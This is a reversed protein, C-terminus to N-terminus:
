TKSVWLPAVMVETARIDRGIFQDHHANIHEIVENLKDRNTEVNALLNDIMQFIQDNSLRGDGTGSALMNALLSEPTVKGFSLTMNFTMPESGRPIRINRQLYQINGTRTDGQRSDTVKVWDWLEQGVNMPVTVFGREDDLEYTEIIAAAIRDAEADSALRRRTTHVKPDLTNSTSSTASGTFQPSHSEGSKVVEKNPNVFRLRITKNWFTHDGSVNFKYEYDYSTGTTVPDFFHLKGDNEPRDKVGTQNLLWDKRDLRSANESVQFYDKPKFDDIINDTSDYTATFSNYNTYPALTADVIATILTKATRADDETLTLETEAKDEAMQNPIGECRLIVRLLGRGSHLEQVRVRLPSERSYEDGTDGDMEWTATNDAVTVGLDTPFTPESSDSTGAVSCRYQFGNATTPVVIDDLSYATSAVWDSRSVGTAAGYSIIAQYHEFDLSTLDGDANHLTIEASFNSPTQLYSISIIRTKDYGRTTESTRSLVVKYIPVYALTKMADSLTSSLSRM